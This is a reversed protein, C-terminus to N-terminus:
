HDADGMRYRRTLEDLTAALDAPLPTSAAALSDTLQDPHSAEIIPATVAPNTLVWALALTTM